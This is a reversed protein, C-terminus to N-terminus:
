RAPYAPPPNPGIPASAGPANQWEAPIRREGALQQARLLSARWADVRGLKQYLRVQLLACAFDRDSWRALQGAIESARPLQDAGILAHAYSVAVAASDEPVGVQDAMQLASRFSADASVMGREPNIREADALVALVRLSERQSAKAWESFHASETAAATEDRGALALILVRWAEARVHAYEAGQLADIAQRALAAATADQGDALDIAAQQARSEGLVSAEQEPNAAQILEGLLARTEAIRGVAALARARIALFIRREIPNEIRAMLPMMRESTALAQAPQLLALQADVQNGLTNILDTPADLRAFRQAAREFLVVAEAPRDRMQAVAGENIDVRASAHTDGAVEYAIRARAFDAAAQAYEAQMAHAIGRATHAHGIAVPENRDGLLGIAEDLLPAAADPQNQKLAVAGLGILARARMVPATEASLSPLLRQLRTRAEQSRGLRYDIESFRLQLETTAQDAPTAAAIARRAADFDNVLLAADVRQSAEAVSLDASDSDRPPRKGLLLLLRDATERGVMVVDAARAEVEREKGDADRLVAKVIWGPETRHVLATVLMTAGTAERLAAAAPDARAAANVVRVIDESAVVNVGAQRMRQAILDMLGLRLWADNPEATITVPLVAIRESPARPSAVAPEPTLTAREHTTIVIAAIACLVLAAVAVGIRIRRSPTVHAATTTPSPLAAAADQMVTMTPPPMRAAMDPAAAAESAAADTASEDLQVAAIWHFGFRPVTLIVKQQAGSDGIARRAKVLTKGLLNDSVDTKGWVAAVLEDRGVARDRHELLYAICDFVTPPLSIRQAGHRLERAAVDISCDGFHYIRRTM